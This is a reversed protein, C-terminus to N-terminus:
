LCGHFSEALMLYHQLNLWDLIPLAQLSKCIEAMVQLNGYMVHAPCKCCGCLRLTRCRCKYFVILLHDVLVRNAENQLAEIYSRLPM